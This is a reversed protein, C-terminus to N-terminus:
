HRLPLPEFKLSRWCGSPLDNLKGGTNPANPCGRPLASGPNGVSPPQPAASADAWSERPCALLSKIYPQECRGFQRRWARSIKDAM